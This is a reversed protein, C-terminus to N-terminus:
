LKKIDFYVEAEYLKDYYEVRLTHSGKNLNIVFSEWYASQNVWHDHLLKNDIYVRMGDNHRVTIKYDGEDATIAGEWSVSFSDVNVNLGPSSNGWNFSIESDIRTLVPDGILNLNNYYRGIFNSVLPALTPTPSNTPTMTITPIPTHTSNPVITPLQTITPVTTPYQYIITPIQTIASSYIKNYIPSTNNIYINIQIGTPIVFTPVPTYTPSEIEEKEINSSLTSGEVDPTIKKRLVNYIAILLVIM